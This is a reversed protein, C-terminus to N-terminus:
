GGHEDTAKAQGARKREDPGTVDDSHPDAGEPAAEPYGGGGSEQRRPDDTHDAQRREDDM